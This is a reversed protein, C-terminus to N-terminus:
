VESHYRINVSITHYPVDKDTKDLNPVVLVYSLNEVLIM